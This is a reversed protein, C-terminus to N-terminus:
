AVAPTRGPLIPHGWTALRAAVAALMRDVGGAVVPSLHASLEIREPQLGVAALRPPLTGRLGAVALVERLDIQHPSLKHGFLRPLEDGELEILDGPMRGADIADLLLVAQAEEIVPLLRMGWTGGDVLEIGAPLRWDRRLRDLAALGLGDDGMIPNGLGVVLLTGPENM